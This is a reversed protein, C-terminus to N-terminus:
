YMMHERYVEVAYRYSEYRTNTSISHDSAFVLRAGRAKMGEMYHTVERRIIDKDNTEFVRADLGGVFAIQDGYKEAFVFPDNDKAKREMPNVADFGVEIILPLAQATSGCTHLVVPLHYDKFFSVLQKHYPMILEALVQPSCFLGNSFGLDESIWFLDPLGVERFLIDYHNRYFDLYVQCFDHIWDPELLLAPLFHEDGITKRMLEFVFMNSFIASKGRSRIEDLSKRIKDLDGLRKPNVELLPQRFKRWKQPTTAEFGIHEPTGSRNKWTKLTAGCGDRTIVWEDTEEILEQVGSFPVTDLEHPVPAMDYDFYVAPDADGPYGQASWYDDLTEFWFHEFVGMQNPIERNLLAAVRECSKM